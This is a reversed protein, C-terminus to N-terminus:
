EVTVKVYENTYNGLLDVLARGGLAVGERILRGEASEPVYPIDVKANVADALKTEDIELTVKIM